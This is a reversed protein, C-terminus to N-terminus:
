FLGKLAADLSNRFEANNPDLNVAQQLEEIAGDLDGKGALALGLGGHAHAFNSDIRLAEHYERIAGDLDGKKALANGLNNHAYVFNFDIQLAEHYEGIAGDVDNKKALLRGLNYHTAADTAGLRLAERYERIAGDVDDKKDLALGLGNHAHAFNPHIRLAERYERIAGDVDGKMLLADGRTLRYALPGGAVAVTAVVSALVVRLVAWISSKRGGQALHMDFARGQIRRAVFAITGAVWASAFAVLRSPLEISGLVILASGAFGCALSVRSLRAEGLRRFNSAFLICGAIPGGLLAALSVQKPSYLTYSKASDSKM